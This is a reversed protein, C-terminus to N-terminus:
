RPLADVYIPCHDSLDLARQETVVEFRLIEMQPLGYVFIHDLARLHGGQPAPGEEYTGKKENLKAYPHHTSSMNRSQSACWRADMGGAQLIAQYAPSFPRSNFDGMSLVPADYKVRLYDVFAQMQRADDVRALDDEVEKEEWWFHNSCVGLRKGERVTELMAYAISKTNDNNRGAFLHWGCELVRFVGRRLLIPTNDTLGHTDPRLLDFSEELLPVMRSAYMGPTMEQLCLVDPAYAAYLQPYLIDRDYVPGCWVNHSMIRLADEM